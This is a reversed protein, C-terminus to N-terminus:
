RGVVFASFIKFDINLDIQMKEGEFIQIIYSCQQNQLSAALLGCLFSTALVRASGEPLPLACQWVSSYWSSLKLDTERYLSEKTVSLIRQM